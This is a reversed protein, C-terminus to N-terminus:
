ITSLRRKFCDCLHEWDTSPEPQSPQPPQKDPGEATQSIEFVCLPIYGALREKLEGTKSDPLKKLVPGRIWVCKEGQKVQYSLREYARYGAVQIANSRLM